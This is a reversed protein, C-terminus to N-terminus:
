RRRSNAWAAGFIIHSESSSRAETRAFNYAGSRGPPMPSTYRALSVLSLRSTASFTNGARRERAIRIAHRSELALGLQQSREIMRIDGRDIADDLIARDHHFQDFPLRELSLSRV